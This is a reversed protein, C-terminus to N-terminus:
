VNQNFISSSLFFVGFWRHQRGLSHHLYQASPSWKICNTGQSVVERLVGKRKASYKIWLTISKIHDICNRIPPVSYSNLIALNLSYAFIQKVVLGIVVSQPQVMM